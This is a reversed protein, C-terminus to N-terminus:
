IESKTYLKVYVGSEQLTKLLYQFAAQDQRDAIVQVAGAVEVGPLLTTVVFKEATYIRVHEFCDDPAHKRNMKQQSALPPTGYACNGLGLCM